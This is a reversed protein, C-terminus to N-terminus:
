AIRRRRLLLGASSLLGTGLLILSSPEPTPVVNTSASFSTMQNVGNLSQSTDVFTALGIGNVIGSMTFTGTGSANLITEGPLPGNSVIDSIVSTVVFSATEGNETITFSGNPNINFPTGATFVSFTGTSGAAVAAPNDFTIAGASTYSDSGTINLIGSITDASAFSASATLVVTVALIMKLNKMLDEKPTDWDAAARISVRFLEYLLLSGESV